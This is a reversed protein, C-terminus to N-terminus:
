NTNLSFGIEQKSSCKMGLEKLAAVTKSVTLNQCGRLGLVKLNKMLLNNEFISKVVIEDTVDTHSFDLERLHNCIRNQQFFTTM